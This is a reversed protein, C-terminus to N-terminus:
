QKESARGCEPCRDPTARLDYGCVPCLGPRIRRRRWRRIPPIAVFPLLAAAPARHPFIILGATQSEVRYFNLEDGLAGIHSSDTDAPVCYVHYRADPPPPSYTYMIAISGYHSCVARPSFTSKSSDAAFGAHFWYSHIWLAVLALWTLLALGYLSYVIWKM